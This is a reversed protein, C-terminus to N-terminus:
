PTPFTYPKEWNVVVERCRNIAIRAPRSLALQQMDPMYAVLYEGKWLGGPPVHWGVFIGPVRNPGFKPLKKALVKNPRFHIAVGFPIRFGTSPGGKHRLEYPSKIDGSRGLINSAFCFHKAALPWWKHSLGCQVLVTQTGEKVHRIAREVRGNYSSTYPISTTHCWNLKKAAKILEKAGDSYFSEINCDPGAVDRMAERADAASRECTPVRSLWATGIDLFAMAYESGDLARSKDGRAYVSDATCKRGFQINDEGDPAHRRAHVKTLKGIQCAPCYPNKPLHTLLHRLSKVEKRLRSELCMWVEWMAGPHKCKGHTLMPRKPNLTVEALLAPVLLRQHRRAPM